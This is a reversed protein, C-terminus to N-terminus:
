NASDDVFAIADFKDNDSEFQASLPLSSGDNFLEGNGMSELHNQSTLANPM